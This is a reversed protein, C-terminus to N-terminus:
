NTGRLKLVISLRVRLFRSLVEEDDTKCVLDLLAKEYSSENDTASAFPLCGLDLPHHTPFPNMITKENYDLRSQCTLLLYVLSFKKAKIGFNRARELAEM